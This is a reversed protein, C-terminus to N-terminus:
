TSGNRMKESVVVPMDPAMRQMMALTTLINPLDDVHGCRQCIDGDLWLSIGSTFNQRLVVEQKYKHWGIFCLLNM